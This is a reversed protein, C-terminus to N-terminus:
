LFIIASIFVMLDLVMCSLSIFLEDDIKNSRVAKVFGGTACGGGILSLLLLAVGLFTSGIGIFNFIMVVFWYGVALVSWLGYNKLKILGSFDTKQRQKVPKEQKPAEEVEPQKVPVPAPTPAPAPEPQPEPQPAPEEKVEEDPVIVPQEEVVPEPQPEEVPEPETEPQPEEKPEESVVEEVVPAEEVIPEPENVPGEVVPAEEVIPEPEPGEVKPQEKEPQRFGCNSCFKAEDPLPSGCNICYKM